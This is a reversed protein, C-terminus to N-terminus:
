GYTSVMCGLLQVGQCKVWLFSFMNECLVRYLFLIATKNMINLVQFGDLHEETPSMNLLGHYMYWPTRGLLLFSHVISVCYILHM